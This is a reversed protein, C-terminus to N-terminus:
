RYRIVYKKDELKFQTQAQRGELSISGRAGLINISELDFQNESGRYNIASDVLLVEEPALTVRLTGTFDDFQYQDRALDQWQYEAKEFESLPLKAPPKFNFYNGPLGSTRKLRYQVTITRDSKNIVVFDDRSSCGALSFVFCFSLLSLSLHKM